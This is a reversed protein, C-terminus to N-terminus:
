YTLGSGKKDAVQEITREQSDAFLCPSSTLSVTDKKFSSLVHDMDKDGLVAALQRNALTVQRMAERQEPTMGQFELVTLLDAWNHLADRLADSQISFKNRNDQLFRIDNILEKFSVDVIEKSAAQAKAASKHYEALKKERLDDFNKLAEKLSQSQKKQKDKYQEVCEDILFKMQPNIEHSWREAGTYGSDYAKKLYKKNITPNAGAEVLIKIIRKNHQKAACYLPTRGELSEPYNVLAGAKLLLRVMTVSQVGVAALLPTVRPADKRRADWRPDPIDTNVDLNKNKLCLEFKVMERAYIANILEQVAEEQDRTNV